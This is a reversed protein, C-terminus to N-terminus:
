DKEARRRAVLMGTLALGLLALTAPEPTQGGPDGSERVNVRSWFYLTAGNSDPDTHSLYFAPPASAVPLADSLFFEVEAKYGAALNFVLGLAMSVDDPAAAPVGNTNDLGAGANFNSFIDGYLYGPEDIEWTQGIAPTGHEAGYENFFTNDAEDIEADIFARADHMGPTTFVLSLIAAGSPITPTPACATVVGDKYTDCEFLTFVAASAGSICALNFLLAALTIGLKRM